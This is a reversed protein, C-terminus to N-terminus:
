HNPNSAHGVGAPIMGASTREEWTEPALGNEIREMAICDEVPCVLSCLNCGVCEDEDVRPIRELPTVNSNVGADNMDLKPIPTTTILKASVGLVMAPTPMGHPNPEGHAYRPDTGAIPMTLGGSARDLHICQHAGDWCATYCLQCGICKDAHIQAVIRYNLNLRKWETVNKLSLGRFDEITEFGKSAMWNLLGDAMDEVIRYGYHMAATCVQVNGCGLLIFEAADRWTGIGGIGSLPLCAEPDSQIAQVM